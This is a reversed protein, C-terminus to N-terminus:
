RSSRSRTTSVASSGTPASGSVSHPGPGVVRSPALVLWGIVEGRTFGLDVGVKRITAAYHQPPAGSAPRFVCEFRHVSTVVMGVAGAGRCSLAGAQVNASAGTPALMLASLTVAAGISAAFRMSM